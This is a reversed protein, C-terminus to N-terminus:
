TRGLLRRIREEMPPHTSFLNGMGGGFPKVIYMHATNPSVASPIKRNAAELQRLASALGNPHGVMEAGTADAKFERTRSIAMQVMIAALPALIAMALVGVINDRSRGGGFFASFRAM